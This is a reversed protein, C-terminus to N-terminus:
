ISAIRGRLADHSPKKMSLFARRVIQCSRADEARENKKQKTKVGKEKRGQFIGERLGSKGLSEELLDGECILRGRSSGVPRSEPSM